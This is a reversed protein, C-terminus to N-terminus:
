NDSLVKKRETNWWELCDKLTNLHEEDEKGLKDFLDALKPNRFFLANNIHVTAFEKELHVALRLSTEEDLEEREVKRLLLEANTLAEELKKEPIMQTAVIENENAQLVLDIHRVHAREDDSLKQFVKRVEFAYSEDDSLQQYIKSAVEEVRKCDILFSRM